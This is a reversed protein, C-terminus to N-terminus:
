SDILAREDDRPERGMLGVPVMLLAGAAMCGLFQAVPLGDGVSPRWALMGAAVACLAATAVGARALHPARRGKAVPGPGWRGGIATGVVLFACFAVGFPTGAGSGASLMILLGAGFAVGALFFLTRRM